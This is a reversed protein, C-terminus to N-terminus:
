EARTGRSDFTPATAEPAPDGGKAVEVIQPALWQAVWMAGDKTFHIGDGRVQIGDIEDAFRGHPSVRKNLDILTFSGPHDQLFDRYLANIRDIRWPEYESYDRGTGVLEPRSFFPSTLVVLKTGQATLAATDRELTRLFFNDFEVTGLRLWQGDVERDLVDWAGVLMVTVDPQFEQVAPLWYDLRSICADPQDIVEGGM